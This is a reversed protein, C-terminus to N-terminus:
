GTEYKWVVRGDSAQLAYLAGDSSGVFVKQELVLPSSEVPGGTKFSWLKKGSGFDLAYVNEDSSGVFVRAHAIAASSKVAGGTKFTWVTALKDPLNGEAVGLLAPGGRFMPWEAARAGNAWLCLLACGTACCF